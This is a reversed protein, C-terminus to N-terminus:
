KSRKLYKWTIGALIKQITDHHVGYKKSLYTSGLNKDKLIEVVQKEKLIHMGHTEGKSQRGKNIKDRHNDACTGTFLHKPNCCPPNDCTHCVLLGEPISGYFLEYFVRHAM